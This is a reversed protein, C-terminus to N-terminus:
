KPHTGRRDQLAGHRQRRRRGHAWGALEPAAASGGARSPGLVTTRTRHGHKRAPTTSALALILHSPSPPAGEKTAAAQECVLGAAAREGTGHPAPAARLVDLRLRPLPVYALRLWTPALPRPHTRRVEALAEGTPTAGKPSCSFAEELLEITEPAFRRGRTGGGKAKAAAPEASTSASPQVGSPSLATALDSSTSAWTPAGGPPHRWEVGEDRLHFRELFDEDALASPAHSLIPCIFPPISNRSRSHRRPLPRGCHLRREQLAPASDRPALQHRGRRGGRGGGERRRGPRHSAM